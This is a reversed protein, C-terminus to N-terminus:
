FFLYNCNSGDYDCEQCGSETMASVELKAGDTFHIIIEAIETRKWTMRHEISKITKGEYKKLFTPDQM